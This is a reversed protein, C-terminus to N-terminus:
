CELHVDHNRPQRSFGRMNNFMDEFGFPFEDFQFPPAQFIPEPQPNRIAEYAANIEKFRREATPNNPHLDPHCTKALRRFANKADDESAGRPVGLIAYPDM